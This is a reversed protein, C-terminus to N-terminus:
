VLISVNVNTKMANGVKGAVDRSGHLLYGM